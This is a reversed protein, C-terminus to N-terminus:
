SKHKAVQHTAGRAEQASFEVRRPQLLPQATPKLTRRLYRVFTALAGIGVVFCAGPVLSDWDHPEDLWWFLMSVGANFWLSTRIFNGLCLHVIAKLWAAITLCFAFWYFLVVVVLVIAVPW